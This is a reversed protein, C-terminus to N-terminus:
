QDLILTKNSNYKKELSDILFEIEKGKQGRSATQIRVAMDKGGEYGNTLSETKKKQKQNGQM